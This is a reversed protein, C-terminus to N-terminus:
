PSPIKKGSTVQVVIRKDYGKKWEYFRGIEDRCEQLTLPKEPDYDRPLFYGKQMFDSLASAELVGDDLADLQARSSAM